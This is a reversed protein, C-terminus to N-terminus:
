WNGHSKSTIDTNAFQTLLLIKNIIINYQVMLKISGDTILISNWHFIYEGYKPSLSLSLMLVIIFNKKYKKYVYAKYLHTNSQKMM